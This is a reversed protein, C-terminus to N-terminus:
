DGIGLEKGKVEDYKLTGGEIGIVFGAWRERDEDRNMWFTKKPLARCVSKVFEPDADKYEATFIGPNFKNMPCGTDLCMYAKECYDDHPAVLVTTIMTPKLFDLPTVAWIAKSFHCIGYWFKSMDSTHKWIIRGDVWTIGVSITNPAKTKKGILFREEAKDM